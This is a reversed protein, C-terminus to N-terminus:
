ILCLSVTSSEKYQVEISQRTLTIVQEWQCDYYRQRVFLWETLVIGYLLTIKECLLELKDNNSVPFQTLLKLKSHTFLLFLCNLSSLTSGSLVVFLQSHFM